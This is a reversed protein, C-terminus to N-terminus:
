AVKKFGTINNGKYGEIFGVDDRVMAFMIKLLKKAVAILAKNKIMGSNILRQYEKHMIRGKKVTNLAAYYLMKRLLSRGRKTIRKKGKHKGSSIEYLDLGAMKIVESQCSFERLDGIEGIIVAVTINGIGKISLLNKSYPIEKLLEVMQIEIEKIFGDLKNIQAMIQKIHMVKSRLGEKIGVSEKAGKYLSRSVSEELMGRSYSRVKKILEELGLNIIEEPTTYEQLLKLATKSSTGLNKDFEPFIECVLSHLRNSLNRYDKLHGERATALSRLEAATGKPIVVSLWRGLRIITAIVGPDKKDTKGPSNGVIERAKKTHLPNVQVLKVNPKHSFYHVFPIGYSGTSEYGIVVQDLRYRKMIILVQTWFTNFGEKTNSFKIRNIERNDPLFFSAYNDDKGVDVASLISNDSIIKTKKKSKTKGKM